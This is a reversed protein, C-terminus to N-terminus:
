RYIAKIRGMSFPTLHQTNIPCHVRYIVGGTTGCWLYQGAYTIGYCNSIGLTFSSVISGSTNVGHVVVPSNMAGWILQNRWDYAIDYFTTASAATFSSILSGGTSLVYIRDASYDSIFIADTGAGYDGTARPAAGHCTSSWTTYSAVVSGSNAVTRYTTYPSTYAKNQWLYTGDYALGRTNTAGAASFSGYVSGTTPNLMFIYGPTYATAYLYSTSIGLGGVGYSSPMAFSGVIDGLAAFAAAAALLLTVIFATKRM